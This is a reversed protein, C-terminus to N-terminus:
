FEVEWDFGMFHSRMTCRCNYVNGMDEADMDGPYMIYGLENHFSEAIPIRVHHLELHADRTHGDNGCSLWEKELQIGQDAAKFYSDQRAQNQVSTVMTRATRMASVVNNNVVKLLRAAIKNINEGQLLGQLIQDDIMKTNWLVDKRLDFSKPLPIDKINYTILNKIAEENLVTFVAEPMDEILAKINIEYITPIIDNIYKLSLENAKNMRATMESVLVKYRRDNFTINRYATKYANTAEEIAKANGSRRAAVLAKYLDDLKEKHSQIYKDWKAQLDKAAEAYIKNIRQELKKLEKETAADAKGSM